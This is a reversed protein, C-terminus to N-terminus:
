ARLRCAELHHLEVDAAVRHTRERHPV